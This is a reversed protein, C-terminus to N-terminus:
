PSTPRRPPRRAPAPPRTTRRGHAAPVGAALQAHVAGSRRGFADKSEVEHFAASGPLVDRPSRFAAGLDQLAQRAAETDLRVKGEADVVEGEAAWIAEM